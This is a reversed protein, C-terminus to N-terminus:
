RPVEVVEGPQIAAGHRAQVIEDVRVRPDQGPFTREVISWVTDGSRASVEVVSPAPRREPTDLPSGGLANGAQAAVFVMGLAMAVVALRRRWYVTPSRHGWAIAARSAPRHLTIVPSGYEGFFTTVASM